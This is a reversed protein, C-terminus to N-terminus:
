KRGNTKVVTKKAAAKKLAAKKIKVPVEDTSEAKETKNGPIVPEGEVDRILVKVAKKLRYHFKEEGLLTELEPLANELQLFVKRRIEKRTLPAPTASKKATPM